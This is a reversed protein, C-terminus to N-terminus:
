TKEEGRKEYKCDWVQCYKGDHNRCHECDRDETETEKPEGDFQKALDHIIDSIQERVKQEKLLDVMISVLGIAMDYYETEEKSMETREAINCLTEIIKAITQNDM